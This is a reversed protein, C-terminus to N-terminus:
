PYFHSETTWLPHCYHRVIARTGEIDSVKLVWSGATQRWAPRNSPLHASEPPFVVPLLNGSQDGWVVELFECSRVKDFEVAVTRTFRTAKEVVVNVDKVVPFFHSEATPGVAFLFPILLLAIFVTM